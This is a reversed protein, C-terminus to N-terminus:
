INNHETQINDVLKYTNDANILNGIACNDGVCIINYRQVEIQVRSIWCNFHPLADGQVIWMYM